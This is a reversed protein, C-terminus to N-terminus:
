EILNARRGIGGRGEWKMLDMRRKKKEEIIRAYIFEKEERVASSEYSFIKTWTGTNIYQCGSPFRFLDPEHCHGMFIYEPHFIRDIESAKGRLTEPCNHKKRYRIIIFYLLAWAVVQSLIVILPIQFNRNWDVIEQIVPSDFFQVPLMLSWFPSLFLAGASLNTFLLVLLILIMWGPRPFFLLLGAATKDSSSLLPEVQIKKLNSIQSGWEKKVGSPHQASEPKELPYFRNMDYGSQHALRHNPVVADESFRSIRRSERIKRLMRKGDSLLFIIARLPHSKIFWGIFRTEPKVNDAFPSSTEVRNFLYRVFISGLPLFIRESSERTHREASPQLPVQASPFANARDYQHGHEVYINGDFFFWPCFLLHDENFTSGDPLHALKRIGSLLADRVEPYFFEADHNGSIFIIRNKICFKALANFLAPHGQMIRDIKWASEAPGSVLGYDGERKLDPRDGPMETVQLFDVFDGAVILTWEIEEWEGSCTHFELFDAFDGDFLFDERPDIWGTIPDRGESLHLDSVVLFGQKGAM